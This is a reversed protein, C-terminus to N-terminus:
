VLLQNCDENPIWRNLWLSLNMNQQVKKISYTLFIQEECEKFM